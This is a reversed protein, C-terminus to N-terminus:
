CCFMKSKKKNLTTQGKSISIIVDIFNSMQSQYSERIKIKDKEPMNLKYTLKLIIKLVLDKKVPGPIKERDVSEMVLKLINVWNNCDFPYNKHENYIPLYHENFIDSEVEEEPLCKHETPKLNDDTNQYSDSEEITGNSVNDIDKNSPVIQNSDM